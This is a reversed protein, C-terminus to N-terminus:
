GVHGGGCRPAHAAGRGGVDRRPDVLGVPDRRYGRHKGAANSLVVTVNVVVQQGAPIDIGGSSDEIVLSTATGTNVPTFAPGSVRQAGVFSLDVGTVSPDLNDLIRVDYMATAQPM